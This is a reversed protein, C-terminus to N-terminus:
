KRARVNEWHKWASEWLVDDSGKACRVDFEPGWRHTADPKDKMPVHRLFDIFRRYVQFRKREEARRLDFDAPGILVNVSSVSSLSVEFSIVGSETPSVIIPHTKCIETGGVRGWTVIAAVCMELLAKAEMLHAVGIRRHPVKLAEKLLGLQKIDPFTNKKDPM